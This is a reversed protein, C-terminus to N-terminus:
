QKGQLGATLDKATTELNPRGLFFFDNDTRSLDPNEGQVIKHANTIICSQQAQRFIETLQVVSLKRSDIMDKLINGAGVSPLQDSDGVM